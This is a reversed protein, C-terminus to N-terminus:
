TGFAGKWPHVLILLVLQAVLLIPIGVIYATKCTKHHYLTKAVSWQGTLSKYSVMSTLIVFFPPYFIARTCLKSQSEAKWHFLPVLLKPKEQSVLMRYPINYFLHSLRSSGFVQELKPICAADHFAWHNWPM